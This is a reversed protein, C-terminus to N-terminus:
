QTLREIAKAAYRRVAVNEDKLSERLAPLAPAAVDGLPFESFVRCAAARVQPQPNEMLELVSKILLGKILEIGESALKPDPLYKEVRILADLAGQLPRAPEPVAFQM